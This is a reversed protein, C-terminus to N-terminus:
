NSLRGVIELTKGNIIRHCRDCIYLGKWGTIPETQKGQENCPFFGYDTPTNGCLCIWSDSYDSQASIREKIESM